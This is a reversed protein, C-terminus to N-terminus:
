FCLFFFPFFSHLTITDVSQCLLSSRVVFVMAPLEYLPTLQAYLDPGAPQFLQNVTEQVLVCGDGASLPKSGSIALTPSCTAANVM